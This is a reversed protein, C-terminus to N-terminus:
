VVLSRHWKHKLKWKCITKLLAMQITINRCTSALQTRSDHDKSPATSKSPTPSLNPETSGKVISKWENQQIGGIAWLLSFHFILVPFKTLRLECRRQHCQTSFAKKERRKPGVRSLSNIAFNFFMCLWFPSPRHRLHFEFFWCIYNSKIPHCCM